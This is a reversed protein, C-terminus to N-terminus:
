RIVGKQQLDKDRVATDNHHPKQHKAVRHTWDQRHAGNDGGQLFIREYKKRKSFGRINTTGL